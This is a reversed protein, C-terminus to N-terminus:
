SAQEMELKMRALEHTKAKREIGTAALNIRFSNAVVLISSASMAIAAFLPTVFGAMALPVAICNYIIAITFNQRVIRATVKAVDAAIPVANLSRRVFVFDASHRGLDSASAPVMSVNGAVLAPADNIGDGVMLVKHDNARLTEVHQVKEAPSQKSAFTEIGLVSAIKSVKSFRDGSLIEVGLKGAKLAAISETGNERLTDQTAFNIPTEGAVAFSISYAELDQANPESIEAVWEPKGFRVTKSRYIGEIGYGPFEELNEITTTEGDGLFRNVAKSSPHSSKTAMTRVLTAHTDDFGNAAMVTPEDTTLTGTKDFVVTDIDALRELATGDRMLIGNQMLRNAGIVHAVPVALGLACPCTIILVAIAAYLSMHWDAGAFVMWAVFTVLALLHVAPAYIQAMRDAIRVYHGRGEEAVHMMNRMEGLFSTEATTTAEIDVTSWLNLAGAEILRGVEAHVPDSEGTVHSRDLGTAGTVIHGNVPFREGAFVRLTMGPKIEKLSIQSTNGEGDVLVGDKASLSHLREVAGRAKQRMLQDLYRGILLFFLLMVSADFYAEEGGTLSEYMSMGTALLVALSIPVDMNLRKGALAKLASRFFPQGSFAVAPIAIMGSILHFLRATEADAGSWVSVSLLMINATAFGAVALALLLSGGASNKQDARYSSDALHHDFGLDTLKQTIESSKGLSANWVVSVSKMSLNARVQEVAGIDGLGREVSGICGACHMEPVIFDTKYRGEGLDISANLLREHALRELTSRTERLHEPSAVTAACCSM